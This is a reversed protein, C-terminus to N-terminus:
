NPPDSMAEDGCTRHDSTQCWKVAPGQSLLAVGSVQSRGFQLVVESRGMGEAGRGRMWLHKQAPHVECSGLLQCPCLTGLFAGRDCVVARPQQHLREMGRLAHAASPCHMVSGAHIYSIPLADPSSHIPPSASPVKNHFLTQHRHMYDTFSRVALSSCTPPSAPPMQPTCPINRAHAQRILVAVSLIIMVAHKHTSLHAAGPLLPPHCKHPAPHEACPGAQGACRGLAVVAPSGQPQAEPPSDANGSPAFHAQHWRKHRIARSSRNYELELENGIGSLAPPFWRQSGRKKKTIWMPEATDQPVNQARM